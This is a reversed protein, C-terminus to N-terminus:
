GAGFMVRLEEALAAEDASRALHFQDNRGVGDKQGALYSHDPSRLFGHGEPVLELTGEAILTDGRALLAQEILVLLEPGRLDAHDSLGLEDAMRHLEAVPLRRLSVLEVRPSPSTPKMM